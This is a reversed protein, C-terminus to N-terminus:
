INANLRKYLLVPAGQTSRKFTRFAKGKLILSENIYFGKMHYIEM